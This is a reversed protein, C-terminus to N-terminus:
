ASVSAAPSPNVSTWAFPTCAIPDFLRPCSPSPVVDLLVVSRCTHRGQSRGDAEVPVLIDFMEMAWSCYDHDRHKPYGLLEAYVRTPLLQAVDAVWDISDARSAAAIM